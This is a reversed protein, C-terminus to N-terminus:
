RSGRMVGASNPVRPLGVVLSCALLVLVHVGRGVVVVVVVVVLPWRTDRDSLVSTRYAARAACGGGM